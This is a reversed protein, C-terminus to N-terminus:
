NTESILNPFAEKIVSVPLGTLPKQKIMKVLLKADDKDVDELLSIFLRERKVQNLDDYGGGKVFIKLRRAEKHLMGESGVVESEKYPPESDPLLLQMNKDYMIKLVIRLPQTDNEKLWSVKKDKSKTEIAKNVIESISLKM